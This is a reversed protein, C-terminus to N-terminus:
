WFIFVGFNEPKEIVVAFFEAQEFDLAEVGIVEALLVAEFAPKERVIVRAHFITVLPEIFEVLQFRM